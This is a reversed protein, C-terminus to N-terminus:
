GRVRAPVETDPAAREGTLRTSENYNIMHAVSGPKSASLAQEDRNFRLQPGLRPALTGYSYSSPGSVDILSDARM